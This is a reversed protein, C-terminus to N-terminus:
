MKLESNRNLLMTIKENALRLETNTEEVRREAMEAKEEFEEM